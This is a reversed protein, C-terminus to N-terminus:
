GEEKLKRVMQDFMKGFAYITSFLFTNWVIVTILAIIMEGGLPLNLQFAKVSLPALILLPTEMGIITFTVIVDEDLM